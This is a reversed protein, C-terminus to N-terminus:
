KLTLTITQTTRGDLPVTPVRSLCDALVNSKGKINHIQPSFEEILLRWQLVRQTQYCTLDYTLNKHDTYIDIKTGLLMSCFEQLTEVISLLEKEITTYNKQAGSLKRSYYAVPKNQQKIVAGLQYDSADTEIEFKLNHNPYHVLADTAVLAKMRKFAKQHKDNWVFEKGTLETLPALIEARKPWMDRYYNVLGIFSRLTTLNTPPQMNLIAQVKKKWPKLGTPTMWYGLWDTEQIAWECKAPNITFGNEELATLIQELVKLHERWSLSSAAVDDLYVKCAIDRLVDEMIAQAIDPSQCVGMPLRKYKYLGFSTAITCLDASEDDLEFTYYQMSVDLKTLYKYGIRSNLLDTIKPLPYVKRKIVKNM